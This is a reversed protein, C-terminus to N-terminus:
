ASAGEGKVDKSADKQSPLLSTSPADPLTEDAPASGNKSTDNKPSQDKAPKQLAEDDEDKSQDDFMDIDDSDTLVETGDGLMIVRGGTMKRIASNNDDEFDDGSDDFKRGGRGKPKEAISETLM